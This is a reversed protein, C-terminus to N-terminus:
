VNHTKGYFTRTLYIAFSDAILHPFNSMRKNREQVEKKINANSLRGDVFMLGDSGLIEKNETFLQLKKM